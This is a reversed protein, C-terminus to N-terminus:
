VRMMVFAEARVGRQRVRDRLVGSAFGLDRVVRGAEEELREELPRLFDARDNRARAEELPADRAARTEVRRLTTTSSPGPVPPVVCASSRAIRGSARQEGDLDVRAEGLAHARADGIRAEDDVAAAGFIMAPASAACPSAAGSATIEPM